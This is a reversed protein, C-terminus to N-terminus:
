TVQKIIYIVFFLIAVLPILTWLSRAGTQVNVMASLNEHGRTGALPDTQNAIVGLVNPILYAILIIALFLGVATGAAESVTIGRHKM